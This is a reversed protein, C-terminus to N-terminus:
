AETDLPQGNTRTYPRDQQTRASPGNGVHRDCEPGIGRKISEPVTLARGCRGCRGEHWIEVQELGHGNRLRPWFWSWVKACSADETVRSKIGHRYNGGDFITGLYSFSSENDSGTLISVFHVVRGTSSRTGKPQRVRYTFRTGTKKSVLTLRANGALTFMLADQLTTFRGVKERVVVSQKQKSM